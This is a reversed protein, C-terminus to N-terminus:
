GHIGKYKTNPAYRKATASDPCSRGKGIKKNRRFYLDGVLNFYDKTGKLFTSLSLLKTKGAERVGLRYPVDIHLYGKKTSRILIDTQYFFGYSRHGLEKLISKRYIVPGNTYRFSTMFTMNIISLYLSSMTNRLLSRVNKNYAYPNIIDVHELLDIYRLTEWPDNENDGPLMTVINFRVDDFGDWFSSGIGQPMKHTIMRIRNDEKMKQAVLKSTNDKSGDNVVIIEGEICLDDFSALTNDISTIISKEENLAPM